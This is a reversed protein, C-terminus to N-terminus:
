GVASKFKEAMVADKEKSGRSSGFEFQHADRLCAGFIGAVTSVIGVVEGPLEGKFAVLVVLCSILGLVDLAVMVDARRNTRGSQAMAIDRKRADQVDALYAQELEADLEMARREFEAALAPDAQIKALAAEPADLGTVAQAIAVAKDAVEAARESGAYRLLMPAFQALGALIPILPIAM